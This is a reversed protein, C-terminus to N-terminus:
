AIVNLEYGVRLDWLPPVEEDGDMSIQLHISELTSVRHVDVIETTFLLFLFYPLHNNLILNLKITYTCYTYYM